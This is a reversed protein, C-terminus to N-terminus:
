WLQLMFVKIGVKEASQDVNQLEKQDDLRKKESSKEYLLQQM